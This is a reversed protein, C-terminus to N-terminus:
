AASRSWVLGQEHIYRLIKHRAGRLGALKMISRSGELAASEADEEDGVWKHSLRVEAMIGVEELLARAAKNRASPRCPQVEGTATAPAHTVGKNHLVARGLFGGGEAESVEVRGGLELLLGTSLSAENALCLLEAALAAAIREGEPGAEDHVLALAAEVCGATAHTHPELFRLDAPSLYASPCLLSHAHDALLANSVSQECRKALRHASLRTAQRLPPEEALMSRLVATRLLSDGLLARVATGYSGDAHVPPLRLSRPAKCAALATHWPLLATALELAQMSLPRFADCQTRTSRNACAHGCPRSRM